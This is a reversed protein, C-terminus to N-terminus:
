GNSPRRKRSAEIILDIRRQRQVELQRSGKRLRENRKRLDGYFTNPQRDPSVDERREREVDM